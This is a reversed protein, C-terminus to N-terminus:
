DVAVISGRNQLSKEVASLVRVMRLGSEGSTLPMHRENISCIFADIMMALPETEDYGIATAAGRRYTVAPRVAREDHSVDIGSDYIELKDKHRTDDFVVMRERGGAILRRIRIPSIWSVNVHAVIDNNFYLTIYAMEEQRVYRSFGVGSVAVPLKGILYDIIAFEHIGLDWVVNVDYQLKGLNARVADFYVLEGVENADIIRKLARVAGSYVTIHDVMLRLDRRRALEVLREADAVSTTLPKEVLVHKDSELARRALSYHSAAPTAVIVADIEPDHLIREYDPMVILEPFEGSVLSNRSEDVDYGYVTDIGPHAILTPILRPGWQGLGILAIKM